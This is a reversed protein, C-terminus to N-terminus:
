TPAVSRASAKSIHGSEKRYAVSHLLGHLGTILYTGGFLDISEGRPAPSGFLMVASIPM